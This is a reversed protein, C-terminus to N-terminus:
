EDGFIEGRGSRWGAATYIIGLEAEPSCFNSSYLFLALFSIVLEGMSSLLRGGIRVEYILASGAAESWAPICSILATPRM